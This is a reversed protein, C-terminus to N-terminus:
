ASIGRASYNQIWVHLAWIRSHLSEEGLYSLPECSINHYRYPYGAIFLKPLLVAFIPVLIAYDTYHTAVPPIVLPNFNLDRYPWSNERRQNKWVPEPTWGTRDLPYLPKKGPPLAAPAHLQGCVELLHVPWSFTYSYVCEGMCRWPKTSLENLVPVKGKHYVKWTYYPLQASCSAGGRRTFSTIPECCCCYPKRNNMSLLMLVMKIGNKTNILTIGALRGEKADRHEIWIQLLWEDEDHLILSNQSTWSCMFVTNHVCEEYHLLALVTFMFFM